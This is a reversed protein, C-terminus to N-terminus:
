KILLWNQVILHRHIDALQLQCPGFLFQSHTNSTNYLTEWFQTQHSLVLARACSAPSSSPFPSSSSSSSPSVAFLRALQVSSSLSPPQFLFAPFLLFSSTVFFSLYVTFNGPQIGSCTLFFGEGRNGIVKLGGKPLVM